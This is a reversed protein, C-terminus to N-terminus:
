RIGAERRTAYAVPAAIREAVIDLPDICDVPPRPAWHRSVLHLETCAAVFSGLAHARLLSQVLAAADAVGNRCKIEYIARHVREQEQEDPWHLWRSADKWLPHEELLRARRTGSTSLLLQPRRREIVTELLVDVLSVVRAQLRSPLLPLVAHVTVCCIVVVQHAGRAECDEIARQLYRALEDRRGELLASTRDPFSPDSWLIVRPMEQERLSTTREYITSVFAASALPGMGGIVAVLDHAPNM